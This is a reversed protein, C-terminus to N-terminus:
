SDDNCHFSIFTSNSSLCIFSNDHFSSLNVLNWQDFLRNRQSIMFSQLYFISFWLCRAENSWCDNFEFIGSSVWLKFDSLFYNTCSPFKRYKRHRDTKFDDHARWLAYFNGAASGLAIVHQPHTWNASKRSSMEIKYVDDSKGSPEFCNAPIWLPDRPRRRSWRQWQFCGARDPCRYGSPAASSLCPFPFEHWQYMSKVAWLNRNSTLMRMGM